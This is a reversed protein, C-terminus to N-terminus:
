ENQPPIESNESGHVEAGGKKQMYKELLIHRIDSFNNFIRVGFVVVAALSLNVGLKSGIYTLLMALAANAFFGSIFIYTKFQGEIRARCGGFVSDLAAIIGVAVYVVMDGSLNYPVLLGACVGILVAIILIM